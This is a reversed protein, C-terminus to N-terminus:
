FTLELGLNLMFGRPVSQGDINIDELAYALDLNLAKFLTAGATVYNLESGAMNQRYGVRFGPILWSDTAYAASATFWQYEDGFPDKVANADAGLSIVWNQNETYIAGELKLQSEMTYTADKMLAKYVSSTPDTYGDMALDAASFGDFKFSPENVNTLTAGVRYHDSVWLAGVDLGMGTTESVGVDQADELEKEIDDLNGLRITERALGVKYYKGRLGGYLIGESHKLVPRSYGLAMEAIYAANIVVSSDNNVTISPQGLNTLDLTTEGNDYTIAGGTNSCLPSGTSCNVSGDDTIDASIANGFNTTQVDTQLARLRSTFSGNVDLVLSGGLGKHAVVLPMVPLHGSFFLKAYGQDSAVEQLIENVNTIQDNIANDIAAGTTGPSITIDVAQGDQFADEALTNVKDYIDDVKGFEAGFGISSLVGFRYQNGNKELAAAGAAPNTIDSMITQGNSVDGYTLNPGPPHYVPTAHAVSASVALSVASVLRKMNKEM